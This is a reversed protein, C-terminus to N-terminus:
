WSGTATGTGPCGGRKQSGVECTRSVSGLNTQSISFTVASSRKSQVTITYNTAGASPVTINFDSLSPEIEQLVAPTAGTYEQKDTFHTEIATQANKAASKAASDQAKARQGLFSPIAIAALIGIILIVVLLEILTFGKESQARQRLKNLM